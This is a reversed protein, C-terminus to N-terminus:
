FRRYNGDKGRWKTQKEIVNLVKKYDDFPSIKKDELLRNIARGVEILLMGILKDNYYIQRYMVGLLKKYEIVTM